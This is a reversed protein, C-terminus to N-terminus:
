KNRGASYVRFAENPNDTKLLINLMTEPNQSDQKFLDEYHFRKNVAQAQRSPYFLSISLTLTVMIAAAAAWKVSSFVLAPRSRTAGIQAKALLKTKFDDSTTPTKTEKAASFYDRMTYIDRHFAACSPCSLIHEEVQGTETDNLEGDIQRSIWKKYTECDM